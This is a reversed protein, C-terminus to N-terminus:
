VKSKNPSYVHLPMNVLDHSFGYFSPIYFWCLRFEDFNGLDWMKIEIFRWKPPFFRGFEWRFITGDKGVSIRFGGVWTNRHIEVDLVRFNSTGTAGAENLSNQVRLGAPFFFSGSFSCNRGKFFVPFWHKEKNLSIFCRVGLMWKWYSGKNGM